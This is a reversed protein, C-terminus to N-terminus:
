PGPIPPPAIEAAGALKFIVIDDDEHSAAGIESELHARYRAVEDADLFEKHLVIYGIGQEALADVDGDPGALTAFEAMRQEVQQSRRDRWGGVIAHGHQMQYLMYHHSAVYNDVPLDLMAVSRGDAAIEEYGAPVRTDVMPWPFLTLSDIVIIGVIGALLAGRLRRNRVRYLVWSAGYAALIALAFIATLGLRGPTRGWSVLPLYLLLAYPM